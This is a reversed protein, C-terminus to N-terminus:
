RSCQLNGFYKLSQFCLLSDMPATISKKEKGILLTNTSIYESATIPKGDKYWEIKMFPDSVPQLQAEFHAYKGEIVEGLNCLPKVFFPKINSSEEMSVSRQYRSQDELYDIKEM